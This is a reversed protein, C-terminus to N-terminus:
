RRSWEGRAAATVCLVATVAVVALAGLGVTAARSSLATGATLSALVWAFIMKSFTAHQRVDGHLERATVERAIAAFPLALVLITSVVAFPGFVLILMWLFRDDSQMAGIVRDLKADGTTRPLLVRDLFRLRARLVNQRVSEIAKRHTTAEDELLAAARAVDAYSVLRNV